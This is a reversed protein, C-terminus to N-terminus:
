RRTVAYRYGIWGDGGAFSPEVAVLLGGAEALTRVVVDQPV